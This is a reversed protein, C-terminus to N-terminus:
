TSYVPVTIVWITFLRNGRQQHTKSDGLWRLISECDFLGAKFKCVRGTLPFCPCMSGLGILLLLFKVWFIAVVVCIGTGPISTSSLHPSMWAGSPPCPSPATMVAWTRGAPSQTQASSRLSYACHRTDYKINLPYKLALTASEPNKDRIRIKVWGPDRVESGPDLFLLLSLPSFFKNDYMKQLWM